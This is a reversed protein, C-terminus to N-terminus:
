VNSDGQAKILQDMVKGNEHHLRTIDAELEEIKDAQNVAKRLLIIGITITAVGVGVLFGGIWIFLGASM